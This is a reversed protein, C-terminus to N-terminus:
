TDGEPEVTHDPGIMNNTDPMRMNESHEFWYAASKITTCGQLLVITLLLLKKMTIGNRNFNDSTPSDRDLKFNTHHEYVNYLLHHGSPANGGDPCM